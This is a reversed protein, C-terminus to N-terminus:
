GEGGAPRLGAVAAAVDALTWAAPLRLFPGRRNPDAALYHPEPYYSWIWEGGRITYHRENHKRIDVPGGALGPAIRRFEAAAALRRRFARARRGDAGPIEYYGASWDTVTPAIEEKTDVRRLRGMTTGEFRPFGRLLHWLAPSVNV